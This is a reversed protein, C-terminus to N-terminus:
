IHILSLSLTDGGMVTFLTDVVLNPGPIDFTECGESLAIDLLSSDLLFIDTACGVLVPAAGENDVFLCDSIIIQRIPDGEQWFGESSIAAGLGLTGFNNEFLCNEIVLLGFSHIVAAGRGQNDLANSSNNKFQCNRLTIQEGFSNCNVAGGVFDTSGNVFQLNEVLAGQAIQLIQGSEKASVVVDQGYIM